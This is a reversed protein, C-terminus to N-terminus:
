TPSHGELGLGSMNKGPLSWAYLVYIRVCRSADQRSWQWDKHPPANRSLVFFPQPAAKQSADLLPVVQHLVAWFTGLWQRSSHSFLRTTRSFFVNFLFVCVNSLFLLSYSTQKIELRCKCICRSIRVIQQLNGWELFSQKSDLGEGMETLEM